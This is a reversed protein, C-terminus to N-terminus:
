PQICGTSNITAEPSAASQASVWKTGVYAAVKFYVNGTTLTGSTWSTGTVGSATSTYSGSVTTAKYITYSSAEPVSSWFVTVLKQISSVCSDSVGTPALPAAQALSEGNNSAKVLISWHSAGAPASAVLLTAIVVAATTPALTRQDM